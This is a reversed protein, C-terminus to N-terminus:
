YWFSADLSRLGVFAPFLHTTDSTLAVTKRMITDARASGQEGFITRIVFSGTLYQILPMVPYTGAKFIERISYDFFMLDDVEITMSRQIVEYISQKARLHSEGREVLVSHEGFLAKIFAYPSSTDIQDEPAKFIAAFVNPDRVFIVRRSRFDLDKGLGKAQHIPVLLELEFADRDGFGEAILKQRDLVIWRITNILAKLFM